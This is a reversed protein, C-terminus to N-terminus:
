LRGSFAERLLAGPLKNIAVLQAELSKGLRDARVMQENLMAVCQKQQALPPTPVREEQLQRRTIKKM